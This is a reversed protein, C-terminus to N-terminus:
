QSPASYGNKGTAQTLVFRIQNSTSVVEASSGGNLAYSLAVGEIIATQGTAANLLFKDGDVFINSTGTTSANLPPDGAADITIPNSGAKLNCIKAIVSNNAATVSNVTFTWSAFVEGADGYAAKIESASAISAFENESLTLSFDDSTGSEVKPPAGSSTGDNLDDNVWYVVQAKSADESIALDNLGWSTRGGDNAEATVVTKYQGTVSLSFVVNVSFSTTDLEASTGATDDIITLQGAKQTSGALDEDLLNYVVTGTDATAKTITIQNIGWADDANATESEDINQFTLYSNVDVEVEIYYDPAAVLNDADRDKKEARATLTLGQDDSLGTLETASASGLLQFHTETEPQTM